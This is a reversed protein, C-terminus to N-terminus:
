NARTFFIASHTKAQGNKNRVKIFLRWKMEQLNCSGLFTLYRGNEFIIPTKGMFMNVGEVWAETLQVNRPLDIELLIEEEVAIKTLFNISIKGNNDAYTCMQASIDCEEESSQEENVNKYYIGSAVTIILFIFLSVMKKSYM